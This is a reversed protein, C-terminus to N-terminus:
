VCCFLIRKVSTHIVFIGNSELMHFVIRPICLFADNPSNLSFLLTSLFSSSYTIRVNTNSPTWAHWVYFSAISVFYSSTADRSISYTLLIFYCKFLRCASTNYYSFLIIADFQFLIGNLLNICKWNSVFCM